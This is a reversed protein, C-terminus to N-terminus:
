DMKDRREDRKRRQTRRKAAERSAIAEPTMRAHTPKSSDYNPDLSYLLGQPGQKSQIQGISEMVHLVRVLGGKRGYTWVIIQELSSEGSCKLCAAVREDLREDIKQTTAFEDSVCYGIAGDHRVDMRAQCQTVLRHVDSASFHLARAIEQASSMPHLWLWSAADVMQKQTVMLPVSIRALISLPKLAEETESFARKSGSAVHRNFSAAQKICAAEYSDWERSSVDDLSLM